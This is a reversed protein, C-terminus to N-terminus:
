FRLSLSIAGFRDPERQGEFERTRLVHTYALRVRRYTVALGAQFDAVFPNKEVSPGDRFTNGDLFINRLVARGEVGLFLYWGFRRSPIFFGSGPLAPRIRPPGYDAPLDRGFRLTGGGAVHTHVNGLSGGIHPTIDVGFGDVDFEVLRRWKRDYNFVIGPENRLQSDWGNPDRADVIDHVFVQTREGQAWPGVVGALLEVSDLRQGTDSVLGIGVHLWGAYPRDGKDPERLTIDAPTYLNQGIVYSVRMRGEGAFFPVRRAASVVWNPVEGEPSLWSLQMGHTYHRDSDGGFLDNDLVLNFTGREDLGELSEDAHGAPIPALLATLTLAPLALLGRRYRKRRHGESPM